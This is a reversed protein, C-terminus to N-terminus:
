QEDRPSRRQSREDCQRQEDRDAARRAEADRREVLHEIMDARQAAKRWGALEADRDTRASAVIEAQLRLADVLRALFTQFARLRAGDMGLQARKTFERAYGAHYRELEALKAECEAVRREHAALGEARRREEADTVRQVLKLQQTARM